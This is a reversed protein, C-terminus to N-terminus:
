NHADENELGSCVGQLASVVVVGVLSMQAAMCHGGFFLQLTGVVWLEAFVQCPLVLAFM